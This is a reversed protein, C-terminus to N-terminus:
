CGVGVGAELGVGRGVGFSVGSGVVDLGVGWGVGSLEIFALPGDFGPSDSM